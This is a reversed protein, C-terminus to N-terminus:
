LSGNRIGLLQSQKVILGIVAFLLVIVAILMVTPIKGSVQNVGSSLNGSVMNVSESMVPQHGTLIYTYSYNVAGWNTTTANTVFGTANVTVNGSLIRRGDGATANLINTISFTGRSTNYSSGGLQYGTKNIFGGTENTVTQTSSVESTTSFTFSGTITDVVIFGLIVVMVLGVVGFIIGKVQGKKSKSIM